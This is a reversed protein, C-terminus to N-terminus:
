RHSVEASSMASVSREVQIKHLSEKTITTMDFGTLDLIIENVSESESDFHCMTFLLFGVGM